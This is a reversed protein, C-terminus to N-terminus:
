MNIENSDVEVISQRKFPWWNGKGFVRVMVPVFLPLFVGAYLILGSLVLTAIQLLSLVGSPLMAAFTGALIIAASIIVTGMNKMAEIMADKVTLNKYENFRDMLFISYDVGLAMLIVFGFFPVAWNIGPYGLINVFIIENIGSATFYTLVLSALLYIPMIISRLLIILVLGIGIVMFVVTRAYDANSIDNLDAYTSTVGSIGIEAQELETNNIARKVAEEIKEIQGLAKNSYPNETLIVDFTVVKRDDLLYTDLVAEFEESNMVEKPMYWGTMEENESNRLENLYDIASNLGGSVETLGSAGRSLGLSLDDLQDVLEQVGSGIQQQGNGVEDLGNTMAPIKNIVAQQGKSAAQLGQQLETIGEIVKQLGLHLNIQEKALMSFNTNTDIMKGQVGLLGDNVDKLVVQLGALSPTVDNMILEELKKFDPDNAINENNEKINAFMTSTSQLKSNLEGLSTSVDQYNSHLKGLGKAFETYGNVLSNSNDALFKAGAAAEELGKKLEATGITGAQLGNNIQILGNQLDSAGKELENTGQVLEDIGNTAGQLQPMSSTLSQSAEQLGDRIQNVGSTGDELGEGLQKAQKAVYFDEIVDGLPRTIGRVKEVSELAEVERTIQEFTAMYKEQDMKEDNKIVITAPLSEGPGFSDSIISFGKVSDYDEGMEDLANFSLSGDYLVLSPLIIAAVILLSVLPRKFSFEGATAWLKSQSHELAGKSPWFVHKGLTLMFFPVITALAVLLVAVGIAVASASQYLKFTSFAISAFGILVAIGSFFVTKWATKYTTIVADQVSKGHSLEEKFRSLLLICYDTGIGFLVAVLFIQTFNSLPFNLQDVLFSVIAGSSVYAIGVTILPILPTVISRFVLILVALIFVVTIIETKKLGEESSAVVDEDIFTGSTMYFQVTSSSLAEQLSKRLEKVEKNELSITVLALVTKGDESLLQEKLEKNEFHTTIEMINLDNKKLELSNITKEIEQLQESTMKNDEHFVVAVNSVNAGSSSEKLIEDAISSRYGEPVTIQGKERVLLEMSPANMVLLTVVVAWLALIYWKGKIMIKM